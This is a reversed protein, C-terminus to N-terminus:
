RRCPPLVMRRLSYHRCGPRFAPAPFSRGLRRGGPRRLACRIKRRRLRHGAGAHKGADPSTGSTNRCNRDAPPAASEPAATDGDSSKRQRGPQPSRCTQANERRKLPHPTWHASQRPFIREQLLRRINAETQRRQQPPGGREGPSFAAGCRKQLPLIPRNPRLTRWQRRGGCQVSRRGAPMQRKLRGALGPILCPGNRRRM